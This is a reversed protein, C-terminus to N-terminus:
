FDVEEGTEANRVHTVEAGKWDPKPVDGGPWECEGADVKIAAEEATEAEVVATATCPVHVEVEYRPM